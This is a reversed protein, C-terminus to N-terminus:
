DTSDGMEGSWIFEKWAWAPLDWRYWLNEELQKM